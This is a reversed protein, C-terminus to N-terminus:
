FMAANGHEKHHFEAREYEKLSFLAGFLGLFILFLPLIGPLSNAGAKDQMFTLVAGAVVITFNVMNFRMKEHHQHLMINEGRM